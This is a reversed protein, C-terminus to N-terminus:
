ADIREILCSPRELHTTTQAVLEESWASRAPPVRCIRDTLKLDSWERCGQGVSYRRVEDVIIHSVGSLDPDGHLKRLLVGTTCFLLKTAASRKSELRIQYGVTLGLPECREKAVRTSVGIASIRRPQTCIISTAGGRGGEIADDLIFQPVKECSFTLSALRTRPSVLRRAPSLCSPSASLRIWSVFAIGGVLWIRGVLRIRGVFGM